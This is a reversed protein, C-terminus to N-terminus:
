PEHLRYFQNGAASRFACREERWQEGATHREGCGLLESQWAVRKKSSSVQAAMRRGVPDHRAQRWAGRTLLPAAPTVVARPRRWFGGILASTAAPWFKGADPQGMTASLQFDGGSSPGAEAAVAFWDVMFDQAPCLEPVVRWLTCLVACLWASAFEEWALLTTSHHRM